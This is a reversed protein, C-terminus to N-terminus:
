LPKNSYNTVSLIHNFFAVGPKIESVKGQLSMLKHNIQQFRMALAHSLMIIFLDVFSWACAFYTGIIALFIGVPLNYPFVFYVQHYVTLFYADSLSMRPMKGTCHSADAIRTIIFWMHEVSILPIKIKNIDTHYDLPQPNLDLWPMLLQVGM